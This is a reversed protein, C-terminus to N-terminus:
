NTSQMLVFVVVCLTIIWKCWNLYELWVELRSNTMRTWKAISGGVIFNLYFATGVIGFLFFFVYLQIIAAKVSDPIGSSSGLVLMSIRSGSDEGMTLTSVLSSFFFLWSAILVMVTYGVLPMNERLNDALSKVTDSPKMTVIAIHMPIAVINCLMMGVYMAQFVYTNDKMGMTMSITGLFLGATLSYEAYKTIVLWGSLLNSSEAYLQLMHARLGELVIAAVCHLVILLVANNPPIDFHQSDCSVVLIFIISALTWLRSLNVGTSRAWVSQLIDKPPETSKSSPPFTYLSFMLTLSMTGFVLLVLNNHGLMSTTDKQLAIEVMQPPFKRLACAKKQGEDVGTTCWNPTQYKTVTPQAVSLWDTTTNNTMSSLQPSVLLLPNLLSQTDTFAYTPQSDIRNNTQLLVILIIVTLATNFLASVSKLTFMDFKIMNSSSTPNQPQDM